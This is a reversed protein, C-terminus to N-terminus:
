NQKYMFFYEAFLKDQILVNESKKNEETNRSVVIEDMKVVEEDKEYRADDFWVLDEEWSDDSYEQIHCCSSTSAVPPSFYGDFWVFDELKLGQTSPNSKYQISLNENILVSLILFLTRVLYRNAAM